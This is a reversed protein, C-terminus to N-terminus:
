GLPPLCPLSIDPPSLPQPRCLCLAKSREFVNVVNKLLLDNPIYCHGDVFFVIEGQSNKIGINRGSSSLKNPNELLKVWSVKSAIGCVVERTNDESMGDVVLIELRNQPYDQGILQNLTQSIFKEENRVPIVISIFPLDQMKM